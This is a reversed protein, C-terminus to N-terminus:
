KKFHYLSNQFIAGKSHMGWEEIWIRTKHNPNEQVLNQQVRQFANFDSEDMESIEAGEDDFIFFLELRKGEDDPWNIKNQLFCLLYKLLKLNQIFTCTWIFM